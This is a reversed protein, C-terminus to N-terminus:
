NRGKNNFVTTLYVEKIRYESRIKKLAAIGQEYSDYFGFVTPGSGSMMSGRAGMDLMAQKIDSIVPYNKITVSELVNCMAGCIGDLDGSKIFGTLKEIDPRETVVSDSYEKFVLPTSVNIPPKALLVFTDPFPPLPTLIEGKGEAIATGRMICFPVDAGLKEGIKMLEENPLTVGFLSRMGVLAAACDASGGALGAAAPIRKKLDIDVGSKIGCLKIMEDAARYVLNREDCPLWSLNSKLRIGKERSKEIVISDCLNVTQMIMRLDHYGDERKGVVDLAINIKARAVTNIRDM